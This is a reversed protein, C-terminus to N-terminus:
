ESLLIEVKRSLYTKNGGNSNLEGMGKYSLRTSEIGNKILLDYVAKARRESLQLNYEETGQPDAYGLIQLHLTFYAALLDTLKDIETDNEIKVIDSDFEFQINAFISVQNNEKDIKVGPENKLSESLLRVASEGQGTSKLSEMKIFVGSDYVYDGVDAIAMTLVYPKFPTVRAKAKLCITMGDYECNYSREGVGPHQEFYSLNNVGWPRSELYYESNTRSNINDVTVPIDTEPILALNYPKDYGDGSIFFAFVDNVGKNVFEPYEESAFAYEFEISDSQPYLTFSLTAADYTTGNALHSLEDSGPNYFAVGVNTSENPGDADSARGTSLIIGKKVPMVKSFTHYAGLALPNGSYRVNTVKIGSNKSLLLEKVLQEPTKDYEVLIQAPLRVFVFLALFIIAYQKYM